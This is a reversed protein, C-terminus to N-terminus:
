KLGKAALKIDSGLVTRRGAHEAIDCAKKAIDLGVSELYDSFAAAAEDSVREAGAHQMMRTAPAKPIIRSRKAM